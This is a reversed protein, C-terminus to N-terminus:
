ILKRFTSDYCLGRVPCSNCVQDNLDIYGYCILNECLLREDDTPLDNSLLINLFQIPKEPLVVDVNGPLKTKNEITVEKTIKSKHVPHFTDLPIGLTISRELGNLTISFLHDGEIDVLKSKKLFNLLDTFKNRVKIIDLADEVTDAFIREIVPLEIFENACLSQLYPLLQNNTM